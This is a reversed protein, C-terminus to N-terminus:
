AAEPALEARVVNGPNPESTDANSELKLIDERQQVLGETYLFGAALELDHGPTRMTVSLPGEGVRIELPEEAALYDLKRQIKGDDWESVQTLELNRPRRSLDPIERGLFTARGYTNRMGRPIRNARIPQFHRAGPNSTGSKM